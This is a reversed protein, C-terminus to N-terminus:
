QGYAEKLEKVCPRKELCGVGHFSTEQLNAFPLSLGLLIIMVIKHSM